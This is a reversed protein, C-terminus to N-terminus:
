RHPCFEPLTLLLQAPLEHTQPSSTSATTKGPTGPEHRQGLLRSTRQWSVGGVTRSSM